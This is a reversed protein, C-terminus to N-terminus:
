RVRGRWYEVRDGIAWAPRFADGYARDFRIMGVYPIVLRVGYGGSGIFNRTFDDRESWASGLDGFVALHIGWYVNFGFFRTPRVKVLEYRYEVTNMWQSKGIRADQNWGRIANRGGIGYQMYVPLDRGAEGSQLSALSFMALTNRDSLRQYRLVEATHTWWGGDGGFLGNRGSNFQAFWGSTANTWLNRTDFQIGAAITPIVDRGSPSLTIGPETTGISLVTLKAMARLNETFQYGTLFDGSQSREPFDFLTNDRVGRSYGVEYWWPRQTQIPTRVRLGVNTAGGFESSLSGKVGRGLGNFAALAPGLSLGNEQTSSISPYVSYPFIETVQIELVIGGAEERPTVEITSFLTLRDLLQRDREASGEPYPEGIRTSLQRLVTERRTRKLGEIRIDQVVPREVFRELQEQTQAGAAWLLLCARWTAM